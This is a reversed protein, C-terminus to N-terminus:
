EGVPPFSAAAEQDTRKDDSVRKRERINRFLIPLRELALPKSWAYPIDELGEPLLSRLFDIADSIDEDRRSEELRKWEVLLFDKPSQCYLFESPDRKFRLSFWRTEYETLVGGASKSVKPGWRSIGTTLSEVEFDLGCRLPPMEEETERCAASEWDKLEEPEVHGGVLSWDGWKAHSRFLLYDGSGILLRVVVYAVRSLRPEQKVEAM